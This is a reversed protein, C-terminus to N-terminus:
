LTSVDLGNGPKLSPLATVETPHCIVIHSGMSLHSETTTLHIESLVVRQMVEVKIDVNNKCDLKTKHKHLM